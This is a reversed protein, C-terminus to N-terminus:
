VIPLDRWGPNISRILVIKKDRRWNKLQKERAIAANVDNTEECYVLKTCGYKKSFGDKLGEKHEFVRRKIDNTIGIYLTGSASAMIYVWYRYQLSM